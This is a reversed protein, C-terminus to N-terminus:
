SCWATPCSRTIEFEFGKLLEFLEEETYDPM